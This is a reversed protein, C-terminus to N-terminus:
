SGGSLVFIAIRLLLLGIVLGMLGLVLGSGEVRFVEGIFRRLRLFHLRATKM